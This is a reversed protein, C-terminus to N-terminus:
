FSPGGFFTNCRVPTAGAAAGVIIGAPKTVSLRSAARATGVRETLSDMAKNAPASGFIDGLLRRVQDLGSAAALQEVDAVVKDHWDFFAGAREPHKNWKECFNEGASTQNWLYWVTRGEVTGNQLMAPVRRLVDVILDLEHDYEFQTVCYEYARSALTTIVISLPALRQDDDLFHVDRHRKAIQVIRRLIGKLRKEEPYAEIQADARAGDYAKGFVSRIRPLARRAAAALIPPRSPLISAARTSGFFAGWSLSFVSLKL